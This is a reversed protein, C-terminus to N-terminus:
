GSVFRDLTFKHFFCQGQICIQGHRSFFCYKWVWVGRWWVRGLMSSTNKYRRVEGISECSTNKWTPPTCWGKHAMEPRSRCRYPGSQSRAISILHARLLRSNGFRPPICALGGRFFFPPGSKRISPDRQPIPPFRKRSPGNNIQLKISYHRRLFTVLYPPLYAPNEVEQFYQLNIQSQIWHSADSYTLIISYVITIQKIKM